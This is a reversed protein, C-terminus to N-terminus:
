SPLTDLLDPRQAYSFAALRKRIKEAEKAHNIGNLLFYIIIAKILWGSITPKAGTIMTTTFMAFFGLAIIGVFFVAALFISIMPQSKALLGLGFFIIPVIIIYVFTSEVSLRAASFSLLDGLFFIGGIIFNAKMVKGSEYRWNDQCAEKEYENKFISAETKNETQSVPSTHM